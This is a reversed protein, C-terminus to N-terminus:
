REVKFGGITGFPTENGYHGILEANCTYGEAARGSEHDARSVRGQVEGEPRSGPGCDAEPTATLPPELAQSARLPDPEQPSLAPHAGTQASALLSLGLALGLALFARTPARRPTLKAILQSM